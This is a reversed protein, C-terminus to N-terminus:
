TVSCRHLFLDRKAGYLHSPEPPSVIRLCTVVTDGHQSTNQNSVSSLFIPKITSNDNFTMVISHFIIRRSHKRSEFNGKSGVKHSDNFIGLRPELNHSMHFPKLVSKILLFFSFTVMVSHCLPMAIQSYSLCSVNCNRLFLGQLLWAQRGAHFGREGERSGHQERKIGAAKFSNIM